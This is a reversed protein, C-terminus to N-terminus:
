HHSRKAAGKNSPKSAQDNNLGGGGVAFLGHKTYHQCVKVSHNLLSRDRIFAYEGTEVNVYACVYNSNREGLEPLPEKCDIGYAQKAMRMCLKWYWTNDPFSKITRQAKLLMERDVLILRNAKKNLPMNNNM